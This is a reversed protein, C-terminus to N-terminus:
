EADEPGSETRAQDLASLTTEEVDVGVKIEHSGGGVLIGSIPSVDSFDRGYAVTVHEEAPILNNTPDFDVWGVNPCFVSFWAHSADSGLLRAKGPPSHTRL